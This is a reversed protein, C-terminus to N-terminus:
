KALFFSSQLCIGGCVRPVEAYPACCAAGWGPLGGVEISGHIQSQEVPLWSFSSSAFAEGPALIDPTGLGELESIAVDV